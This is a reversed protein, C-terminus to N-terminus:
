QLLPSQVAMTVTSPDNGLYEEQAFEEPNFTNNDGPLHQYAQLHPRGERYENRLAYHHPFKYTGEHQQRIRNFIAMEHGGFM